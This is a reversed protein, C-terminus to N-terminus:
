GGSAAKVLAEFPDEGDGDDGDQGLAARRELEAGFKLLQVAVNVPIDDPDVRDLVKLAIEVAKRGLKKHQENLARLEDEIQEDTRKDAAM